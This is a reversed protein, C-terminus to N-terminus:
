HDCLGAPDSTKCTNRRFVNGSGSGDWFLDPDNHRVANGVVRNDKPETGMFDTVVVVGGNPFATRPGTRLNRTIQNHVVRSDHAGVLAIGVGSM